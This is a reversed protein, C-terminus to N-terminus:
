EDEETPMEECFIHIKEVDPLTYINQMLQSRYEGRTFIVLEGLTGELWQVAGYQGEQHCADWFEYAAELLKKGAALRKEDIRM